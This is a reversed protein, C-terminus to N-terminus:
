TYRPVQALAPTVNQTWNQLFKETAAVDLPRARDASFLTPPDGMRRMPIMAQFGQLAADDMEGTGPTAIGGPAIANVWIGHPALELAVNKTFGWARV